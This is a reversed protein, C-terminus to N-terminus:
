VFEIINERLTMGCSIKDIEKQMKELNVLLELSITKNTHVGFCTQQFMIRKTKM